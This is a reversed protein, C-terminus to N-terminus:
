REEEDLLTVNVSGLVIKLYLGNDKPLTSTFTRLEEKRVNLSKKLDTFDEKEKESSPRFCKISESIRTLGKVQQSIGKKVDAEAKKFNAVAKTCSKHLVEVDHFSKNLENWEEVLASLGASTAM